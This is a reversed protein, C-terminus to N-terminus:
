RIHNVFARSAESTLRQICQSGVKRFGGLEKARSKAHHYLQFALALLQLNEPTPNVLGLREPISLPVDIEMAQRVIYWLPACLLYHNQKDQEHRCGFICPLKDSESMRHSTTWGGIYTKFVCMATHQKVCRLSKQLPVFWDLPM